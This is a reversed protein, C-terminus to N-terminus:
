KLGSVYNKIWHYAETGSSEIVVFGTIKQRVVFCKSKNMTIVHNNIEVEKIVGSEFLERM